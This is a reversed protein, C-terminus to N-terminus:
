YTIWWSTQGTFWQNFIAPLSDSTVLITHLELWLSLQVTLYNLIRNDAV